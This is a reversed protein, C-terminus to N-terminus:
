TGFDIMSTYAEYWDGVEMFAYSKDLDLTLSIDMLDEDDYSYGMSAIIQGIPVTRVIRGRVVVNMKLCDGLQRPIKVRYSWTSDVPEPIYNFVGEYPIADVLGYGRVGGRITISGAEPMGIIRLHLRVFNKHMDAVYEYTDADPLAKGSCTYVEDCQNDYTIDLKQGSLTNMGTIGSFVTVTSPRRLVTLLCKGNEFDEKDLMGQKVVVGDQVVSVLVNGDTKLPSEPRILLECPCGTRNEKVSCSCLALTAIFCLIRNM